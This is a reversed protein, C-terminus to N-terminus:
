PAKRSLSPVTNSRMRHTHNAASKSLTLASSVAGLRQSWVTAVTVESKLSELPAPSPKSSGCATLTAVALVSLTAALLRTSRQSWTLSTSLPFTM